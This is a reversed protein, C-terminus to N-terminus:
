LEILLFFIIPYNIKIRFYYYYLDFITIRIIRNVKIIERNLIM